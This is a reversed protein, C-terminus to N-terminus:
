FYMGKVGDDPLRVSAMPPQICALSQLRASYDALCAGVAANLNGFPMFLINYVISLASHCGLFSLSKAKQSRQEARGWCM